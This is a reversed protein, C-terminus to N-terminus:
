PRIGGGDLGRSSSEANLGRLSSWANLDEPSSDGLSEPDLSSATISVVSGAGPSSCAGGLATDDEALTSSSLCTMLTVMM